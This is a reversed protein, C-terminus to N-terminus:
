ILYLGYIVLALGILGAASGGVLLWLAGAVISVSALVIGIQLVGVGIELSDYEDAAHKGEAVFSAAAKRKVQEQAAIRAAEESQAAETRRVAAKLRPERAALVDLLSKDNMLVVRHNDLANLATQENGASNEATVITKMANHVNLDAIALVAAMLAIIVAAVKARPSVIGHGSQSHMGELSEQAM